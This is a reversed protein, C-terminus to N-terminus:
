PPPSHGLRQRPESRGEQEVRRRSQLLSLPGALNGSTETLILSLPYRERRLVRRKAYRALQRLRWRPLRVFLDGAARHDRDRLLTLLHYAVHGKSYGRVQRKLADMGRRHRHWAYASPEYVVTYGAKMVRYFLYIDEGTGTPMGAGLSEEMPGVHPHDLLSARFASNGTGGLEWTPVARRRFSNFWAADAEKGAVGRWFGGYLEFLRQARTELELPLTNGTVAAVDGRSFPALLKELWDPPAVMDDDMSVLIEGKAVAFGKNSAYSRGAREEDVLVVGPFEAVVPPTLGSAPNNDVVVIEIERGTEQEVLPALCARLDEPRDRTPVIVSVGVSGALRPPAGGSAEADRDPLYRRELAVKAESWLSDPGQDWGRRLLGLGVSDVIADRLQLVGVPRRHNTVETFGQMRGHSTVYVRVASHRTVDDLTRLPGSLDVMRVGTSKPTADTPVPRKRRRSGPADWGDPPAEPDPGSAAVREANRRSERYRFPGILSYWLEVFILERPVHPPRLLSAALRRVNWYWYWWAGFLAVARRAEPYHFAVRALYSYLGISNDALQKHLRSYERRHRHRVLAGPEYVLTHGAKLVRFFVETDGGGSTVTGVDLAPDFPGVEGFVSTRYAMNAGAGYQGGGLHRMLQETPAAEGDPIRWWKRRYGRGFGGYREFLVQAETEMEYPVTLGTVAMTGPEGFAGVIASVWGPDVAVDDDTFALIEGRAEAIARNRAWDLGPREERAYRAQPYSGRVLRETADDSPANDVVLVELNPYDLRFIADLCTKLDGARNRTCVAVTVLPLPGGDAQLAIPDAHPTELLEHLSCGGEPLPSSVLDQLHHRLIPWSLRRIAVRRLDEETLPTGPLLPVEFHGVPYGHVRVLARVANYGALDGLPKPPAELELDLV